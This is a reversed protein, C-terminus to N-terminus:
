TCHAWVILRVCYTEAFSEFLQVKAVQPLWLCAWKMYLFCGFRLSWGNRVGIIFVFTDLCLTDYTWM